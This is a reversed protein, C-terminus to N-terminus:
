SYKTLGNVLCYQGCAFFVDLINQSIDLKAEVVTLFLHHYHQRPKAQGIIDLYSSITQELHKPGFYWGEAQPTM